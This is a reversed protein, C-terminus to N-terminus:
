KGDRPIVMEIFGDKRQRELYNFSVIRINRELLKWDECAYPSLSISEAVANAELALEVVKVAYARVEFLSESFTSDRLSDPMDKCMEILYKFHSLPMQNCDRRWSHGFELTWSKVSELFTRMLDHEYASTGKKRRSKIWTKAVRWVYGGAQVILILDVLEQPLL